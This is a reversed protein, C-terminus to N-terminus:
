KFLATKATVYNTAALAVIGALALGLVTLAAKEPSSLGTDDRDAIWIRAQLATAAVLLTATLAGLVAGPRVTRRRAPTRQWTTRAPRARSM